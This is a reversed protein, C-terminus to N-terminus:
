REEGGRLLLTREQEARLQRYFEHLFREAPIERPDWTRQLKQAIKGAVKLCAAYRQEGAPQRLIGELAQVHEVGFLALERRTFTLGEATQPRSLLDPLLRPRPALVVITGAALDGFRLGFRNFLPFAVVIGLWALTSVLLPLPFTGPAVRAAIVFTLPLFFEVERLFNRAVVMDATLPGGDRAIVRLGLRKKAPSAGGTKLEFYIFYFVRVLFTGVIAAATLLAEIGPSRFFVALFVFLLLVAAFATAMFLLDILLAAARSSLPAVQFRLRVQEPTLLQFEPLAFLYGKM